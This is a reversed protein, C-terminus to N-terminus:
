KRDCGVQAAMASWPLDLVIIREFPPEGKDGVTRAFAGAGPLGVVTRPGAEGFPQHVVGCIPRGRYALGLLVTVGPQNGYLFEKTGDLPDVWAQLDSWEAHRVEYPM